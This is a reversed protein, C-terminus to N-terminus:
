YLLEFDHRYIKYGMSKVLNICKDNFGYITGKWSHCGQEKGINVMFEYVERGYGNGRFKEDIVSDEFIFCSNEIKAIGFGIIKNDIEMCYTYSNPRSLIYLFTQEDFEFVPFELPYNDHHM